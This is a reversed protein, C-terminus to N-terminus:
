LYAEQADMQAQDVVAVLDYVSPTISPTPHNHVIHISGIESSPGVGFTRHITLTTCDTHGVAGEIMARNRTEPQVLGCMDYISMRLNPQVLVRQVIAHIVHQERTRLHKM